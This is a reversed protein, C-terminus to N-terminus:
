FLKNSVSTPVWDLYFYIKLHLFFISRGEFIFVDLITKGHLLANISYCFLQNKKKKKLLSFCHNGWSELAYSYYM